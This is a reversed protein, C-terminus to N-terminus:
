LSRRYGAKSRFEEEENFVRAKALTDEQDDLTEIAQESIYAKVRADWFLPVKLIGTNRIPANCAGTGEAGSGGLPSTGVVNDQPNQSM